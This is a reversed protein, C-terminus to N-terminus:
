RMVVQQGEEKLSHRAMEVVRWAEPDFPRSLLVRQADRLAKERSEKAREATEEDDNLVKAGALTAASRLLVARFGTELHDDADVAAQAMKLGLAANGEQLFLKSLDNM